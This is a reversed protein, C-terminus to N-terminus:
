LRHATLRGEDHARDISPLDVILHEIGRAILYQVAERTLYPPMLGTYDRTRKALENPLTRIVAARPAFPPEAPWAARLASCTVLRDDPQPAPDSSEATQGSPVPGASLLLAPLLGRP